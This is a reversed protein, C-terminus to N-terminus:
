ESDHIGKYKITNDNPIANCNIDSKPIHDNLIDIQNYQEM